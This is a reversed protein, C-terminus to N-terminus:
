SAVNRCAGEIIGRISMGEKTWAPHMRERTGLSACDGARGFSMILQM